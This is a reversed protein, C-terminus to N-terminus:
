LASATSFDTSDIEMSTARRPYGNATTPGGLVQFTQGRSITTLVAYSTGAGKRVNLTGTNVAVTDGVEVQGPIAATTATASPVTPATSTAEGGPILEIYSGAVWGDTAGPLDLQYWEYNEGSVPGDLVTYVSGRLVQGIVSSGTGPAQRVNLRTATVRVQSGIPM